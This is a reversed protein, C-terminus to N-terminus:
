GRSTIIAWDQYSDREILYRDQQYESPLRSMLPYDKVAKLKSRVFEIQHTEDFAEQIQKKIGPVQGDHLEIILDCNNLAYAVNKDFLESEYGECDCIVLGKGNFKFNVLEAKDCKRKLTTREMTHNATAMKRCLDLAREEIDYAHIRAEPFLLALGVAYYGEACGIDIIDSYKNKSLNQLTPHLEDEYSGILKTLLGSGFSQYVAYKMGKFIGGLVIREPSLLSSIYMEQYKVVKHYTKRGLVRLLQNRFLNKM